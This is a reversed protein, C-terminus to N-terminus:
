KKYWNSLGEFTNLGLETNQQRVQITNLKHAGVRWIETFNGTQNKPSTIVEGMDKCAVKFAKTIGTKNHTM